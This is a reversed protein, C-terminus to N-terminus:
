DCMSYRLVPTIFQCPNLVVVDHGGAELRHKGERVWREFIEVQESPWAGDCPMDVTSLMNLIIVARASVDEYRSLDFGREELMASVDEDRFLPRIDAAFSIPEYTPTVRQGRERIVLHLAGTALWERLSSVRPVSYVV